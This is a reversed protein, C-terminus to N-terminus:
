AAQEKKKRALYDKRMKFKQIKGLANLEFPDSQVTIDTPVKYAALNDKAFALIDDASTGQKVRV